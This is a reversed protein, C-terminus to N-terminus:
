SFSSIEFWFESEYYAREPQDKKKESDHLASVTFILHDYNEGNEETYYHQTKLKIEIESYQDGKKRFIILEEYIRKEAILYELDVGDFVM